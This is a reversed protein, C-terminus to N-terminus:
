LTVDAREFYQWSLIFGIIAMLVIIVLPIVPDCSYVENFGIQDATLLYIATGPYFAALKDGFIMLNGLVITIGYIIAPIINKFWLTICIVPTIFLVTLLNAKMFNVFSHALVNISFETACGIFGVFVVGIWSIITLLTAWLIFTIYKSILFETKSISKSMVSKLTHETYERNFLYALILISLLIGFLLTVYVMSQDLLGAFTVLEIPDSYKAKFLSLLMMFPTVLSGLLSVRFITSRKLKLFEGSILNLM